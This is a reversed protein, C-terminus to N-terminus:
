INGIYADIRLLKSTGSTVVCGTKLDSTMGTIDFDIQSMNSSFEPTIASLIEFNLEREGLDIAFPIM